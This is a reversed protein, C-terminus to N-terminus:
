SRRKKLSVTAVFLAVTIGLLMFNGVVPLM